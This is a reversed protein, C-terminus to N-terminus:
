ANKWVSLQISSLLMLLYLDGEVPSRNVGEITCIETEVLCVVSLAEFSDNCQVCCTLVVALSIAGNNIICLAKLSIDKALQFASIGRYDWSKAALPQLLHMRQTIDLTVIAQSISEILCAVCHQGIVQKSCLTCGFIIIHLEGPCHIALLANM